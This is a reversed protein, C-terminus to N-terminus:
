HYYFSIRLYLFHLSTYKSNFVTRHPSLFFCHLSPSNNLLPLFCAFRKVYKMGTRAQSIEMINQGTKKGIPSAGDCHAISAVTIQLEKRSAQRTSGVILMAVCWQMRRGWEGEIQKWVQRALYLQMQMFICSVFCFGAAMKLGM